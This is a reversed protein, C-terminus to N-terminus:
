ERGAVGRGPVRQEASRRSIVVVFRNGSGVHEYHLEDSLRAIAGLGAAIGGRRWFHAPDIPGGADSGDKLAAALNTIKPGRDTAELRLAPGWKIDDLCSLEVNGEVGHKLINTALETAVIELSQRAKSSFGQSDALGRLIRRLEFIDLPNRVPVRIPANVAHQM